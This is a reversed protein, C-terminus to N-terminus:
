AERHRTRAGVREVFARQEGPWSARRASLRPQRLDCDERRRLSGSATASRASRARRSGAHSATWTSSTGPLGVRHQLRRRRRARTQSPPPLPATPPAHRCHPTKPTACPDPALRAPAPSGPPAPPSQRCLLAAAPTHLPPLPASAQAEISPEYLKNRCIACTDAGHSGRPAEARPTGPHAAHTCHARSCPPRPCAPPRPAGTCIDWSWFTM